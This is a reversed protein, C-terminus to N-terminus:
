QSILKRTEPRIILVLVDFVRQAAPFEFTACAGLSGQPPNPLLDAFATAALERDEFACDPFHGVAAKLNVSECGLAVALALPNALRDPDLPKGESLVSLM